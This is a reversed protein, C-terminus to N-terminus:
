LKLGTPYIKKLLNWKNIRRFFVIINKVLNYYITQKKDLYGVLKNDRFYATESLSILSEPISSELNDKKNGDKGLVVITPLIIEKTKSIYSSTLDDFTTLVTGGLYKFNNEIM